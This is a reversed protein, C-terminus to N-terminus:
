NDNEVLGIFFLPRRLKDLRGPHTLIIKKEERFGKFQDFGKSFGGIEFVTKKVLYDPTKEGRKSKLYDVGLGLWRVSEVFFDERLAGICERYDKYLLRYPLSFLIKPERLVNSGKPLVRNLVFAKEMLDVYKEIKYRSAGLNKSLSSYSIGESHSKGIFELMKRIELAEEPSARGNLVIDNTIIRELVSRFLPIFDTKSLTFAYNRGQLFGDFLNEVHMSKGYFERAKSADLFDSFSFSPLTIGKDFFLYERFQFSPVFLIRVRRSLDVSLEHLSISSSSTFIINIKLFDYIKKLEKEFGSYAQVEDLLLIKIGREEWLERALEFVSGPRASELSIYFVSDTESLFQKLIVTKGAGRPGILALFVRESAYKVVRSYLFRKKVFGKGEERALENLEILEKDM